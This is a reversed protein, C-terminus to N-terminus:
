IEDIVQKFITESTGNKKIIIKPTDDIILYGVINDENLLKQGEKETKIYTTKFIRDENNKDSLVKITEKYTLSNNWTDNEIVAIPISSFTETKEINSFALYFFVGLIIPFAFTWFILTKNKFLIKLSYKLNHTFM